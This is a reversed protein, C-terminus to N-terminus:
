RGSVPSLAAWGLVHSKDRAVYRCSELHDQDWDSWDPASTEFTAIGTAIGAEYITRVEPWDEPLLPDIQLTTM